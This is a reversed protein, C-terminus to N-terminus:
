MDAGLPLAGRGIQRVRRAAKNAASECGYWAGGMAPTAGM